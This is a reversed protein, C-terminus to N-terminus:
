PSPHKPPELVTKITARRGSVIDEFADTAAAFPLASGVVDGVYPHAVAIAVADTYDATVYTMSGRLNIENFVAQYIDVPIEGEWMSVLVVTGRRKCAALAQNVASKHGATLFVVDAPQPTDHSPDITVFGAARASDLAVPDIDVCTIDTAGFHRAAVAIMFGIAGAGIVLVRQGEVREARRVAHVAVALPEILVGANLPLDQPLAIVTHEPAPFYEGFTGTWKPTGPVVKNVCLNEHGAQCPECVGCAIQPNVSVYDGINFRQVNDGVSEVYGVLEHGLVAPPKRFRHKGLYAHVDSGCIGTLAVRILVENARIQPKPVDVEVLQRAQKWVISNM